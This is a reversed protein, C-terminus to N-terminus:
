EKKTGFWKKYWEFNACEDKSTCSLCPFEKEAMKIIEFLAESKPEDIKMERIKKEFEGQM